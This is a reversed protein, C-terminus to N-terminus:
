PSQLSEEVELSAILRDHLGGFGGNSMVVIVDGRRAMDALRNVIEDVTELAAAEVGDRGLSETIVHVDMFDSARDNHRFPPVSLIVVDTGLFADVYASEFAKRRSSNTRPEFVGIIRQGPWRDRAAALTERVATPHHAFDDVITVGGIVARIEQRRKMGRFDKFADAVDQFSMGEDLALTAAALANMVNHRGSSQLTVDGLDNGHHVLRFTTGTTSPRIDKARVDLGALDMG